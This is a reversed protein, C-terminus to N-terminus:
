VSKIEREIDLFDEPEFDDGEIEFLFDGAVNKGLIKSARANRGKRSEDYWVKVPINELEFCIEQKVNTSNVFKYVQNLDLTKNMKVPKMKKASTIVIATKEFYDDKVTARKVSKLQKKLDKRKIGKKNLEQKLWEGQGSDVMRKAQAMMEPNLKDMSQNLLESIQEPTLQEVLKPAVEQFTEQDIEETQLKSAAMLEDFNTIM